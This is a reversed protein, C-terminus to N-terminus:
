IATEAGALLPIAMWPLWTISTSSASRRPGAGVLRRFRVPKKWPRHNGENITRSLPIAARQLAGVHDGLYM